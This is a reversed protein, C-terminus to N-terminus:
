QQRLGTLYPGSGAPRFGRRLRLPDAGGSEGLEISIDLAANVAVDVPHEDDAAAVEDDVLAVSAVIARDAAPLLTREAAAFSAAIGRRHVLEVVQM